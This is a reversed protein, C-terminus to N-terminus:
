TGPFGMLNEGSLNGEYGPDVSQGELDPTSVSDTKQSKPITYKEQCRGDRENVHIVM